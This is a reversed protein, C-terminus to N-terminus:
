DKKDEYIEPYLKRACEECLGHSFSAESRESIYCEIEEYEDNENRIRKCSACIPLIGELTRIKKKLEINQLMVRNILYVYLVLALIRIGANISAWAFSQTEHWPIHFGLRALPLCFALVYALKNLGNWAAFGVPVIYFIPFRIPKGALFDISLVILTIIICFIFNASSKKLGMIKLDQSM